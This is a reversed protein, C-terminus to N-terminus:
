LRLLDNKRKGSSVSTNVTFWDLAKTYYRDILTILQLWNMLWNWDTWHTWINNNM